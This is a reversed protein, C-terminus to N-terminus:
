EDKNPKPPDLENWIKYYKFNIFYNALLAVAPVVIMLINSAMFLTLILQAWVALMDAM